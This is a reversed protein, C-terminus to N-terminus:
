INENYEDVFGMISADFPNLKHQDLFPMGAEKSGILYVFDGNGALRM